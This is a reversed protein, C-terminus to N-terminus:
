KWKGGENNKNQEQIVLLEIFLGLQEITFDGDLFAKSSYHPITWYDTHLEKLRKEIEEKRTLKKDGKLFTSSCINIESV